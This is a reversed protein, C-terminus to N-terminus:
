IFIGVEDAEDKAILTPRTHNRGRKAGRTITIREAVEYTIEEAFRICIIALTCVNALHSM